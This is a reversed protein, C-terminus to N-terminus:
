FAMCIALYAIAGVAMAGILILTVEVWRPVYRYLWFRKKM